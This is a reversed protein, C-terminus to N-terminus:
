MKAGDVEAAASWIVHREDYVGSRQGPTRFQQQLYVKIEEPRPFRPMGAVRFQDMSAVLLARDENESSCLIVLGFDLCSSISQLIRDPM